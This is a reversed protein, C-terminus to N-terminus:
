KLEATGSWQDSDYPRHMRINLKTPSGVAAKTCTGTVEFRRGGSASFAVKEVGSGTVGLVLDVQKGGLTFRYLGFDIKEVDISVKHKNCGGEAVVSGTLNAEFTTQSIQGELPTLEALRAEEAKRQRLFWDDDSEHPKRPDINKAKKEAAEMAYKIDNFTEFLIVFDQNSGIKVVEAAASERGEKSIANLSRPNDYFMGAKGAAPKIVEPPHDLDVLKYVDAYSWDFTSADIATILKDLKLKINKDAAIAMVDDRSPAGADDQALAPTAAFAALLIWRHM